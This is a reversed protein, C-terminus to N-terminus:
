NSYKDHRDKEIDLMVEFTKDYDLEDFMRLIGFIVGVCFNDNLYETRQYVMNKAVRNYIWDRLELFDESPKEGSNMRAMHDVALESSLDSFNLEDIEAYKRGNLKSLIESYITIM